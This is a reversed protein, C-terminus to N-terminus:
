RYKEKLQDIIMDDVGKIIRLDEVKVKPNKSIYGVIDEAVPGYNVAGDSFTIKIGHIANLDEDTATKISPKYSLVLCLGFVMSAVIFCILFYRVKPHISARAM